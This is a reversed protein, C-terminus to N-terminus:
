SAAATFVSSCMGRSQNRQGIKNLIPVFKAANWYLFLGTAGSIAVTIWPTAGYSAPNMLMASAAFYSVIVSRSNMIFRLRKKATNHEGEDISGILESWSFGAATMVAGMVFPMAISLPEFTHRALQDIVILAARGGNLTMSLTLGSLFKIGTDSASRTEPIDESMKFLRRWTKQIPKTAKSWTDKDIFISTWLISYVINSTIVFDSATTVHLWRVIENGLTFTAISFGIKDRKFANVLYHGSFRLAENVGGAIQASKKVAKGFPLLFTKGKPQSETEKAVQELIEVQDSSVVTLESSPDHLARSLAASVQEPELQEVTFEVSPTLSGPNTPTPKFTGTARTSDTNSQNPNAHAALPSLAISLCLLTVYFVRTGKQKLIGLFFYGANQM